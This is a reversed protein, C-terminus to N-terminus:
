LLKFANLIEQFFVEFFSGVCENLGNNVHEHLQTTFSGDIECLDILDNAENFGQELSESFAEAVSFDRMLGCESIEVAKDFMELGGEIGGGAVDFNEFLSESFDLSSFGLELFQDGANIVYKGQGGGSELGYLVVTSGRFASVGRFL